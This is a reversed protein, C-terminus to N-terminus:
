SMYLQEPKNGEAPSYRYTGMKKKLADLALDLFWMGVNWVFQLADSKILGIATGLNTRVLEIWYILRAATWHLQTPKYVYDLGDRVVAPPVYESPIKFKVYFTLAAQAIDLLRTWPWEDTNRPDAGFGSWDDGMHEMVKFAVREADKAYFYKKEKPYVIRGRATRHKWRYASASM